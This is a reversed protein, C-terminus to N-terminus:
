SSIPNKKLLLANQSLSAAAILILSFSPSHNSEMAICDLQLRILSASNYLYITPTIYQTISKYALIAISSM